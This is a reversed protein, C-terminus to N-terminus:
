HNRKSTAFQHFFAAADPLHACGFIWCTEAVDSFDLGGAAIAENLYRQEKGNYKNALNIALEWIKVLDPRTLHSRWDVPTESRFGPSGNGVANGDPIKHYQGAAKVFALKAPTTVRENWDSHQVIHIRKATNIQPLKTTIQQMLDASFDSQGAEAIWISGGDELAQVARAAVEQLANDYNAHADSWNSCFALAFLEDAPVYLGTHTGYTGAVAHFKVKKFRPDALVTAVAAVSHLDDVDTKCDFNALFLDNKIQFHGLMAPSKTATSCAILLFLSLIVSKSM